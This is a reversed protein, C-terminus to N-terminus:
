CLKAIRASQFGSALLMFRVSAISIADPFEAKKKSSFPPRRAFYDDLVGKVDSILPVNVADTERLFQDFAAALASLAAAQDRVREIAVSAGLQELMGAHKLLSSNAETVLEELQSKVEGVTVDTVLLRLQGQKAFEAVKSLLRGSWHFRAKRFAQTDIFVYKTRLQPGRAENKSTM